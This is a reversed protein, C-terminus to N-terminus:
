LENIQFLNQRVTAYALILPFLIVALECWLQLDFHFLFYLTLPLLGLLTAWRLVRARQRDIPLLRRGFLSSLWDSSVGLVILGLTFGLLM